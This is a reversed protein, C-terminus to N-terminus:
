ILPDVATVYRVANGTLEEVLARTQLLAPVADLDGTLTVGDSLIDAAVGRIDSVPKLVRVCLLIVVPLVVVLGVIAGILLGVM